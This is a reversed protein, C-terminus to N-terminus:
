DSFGLGHPLCEKATTAEGGWPLFSSAPSRASRAEGEGEETGLSGGTHFTFEGGAPPPAFKASIRSPLQLDRGRAPSCKTDATKRGYRLHVEPHPHEPGGMALRAAKHM